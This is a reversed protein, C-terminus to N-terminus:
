DRHTHDDRWEDFGDMEGDFSFGDRAPFIEEVGYPGGGTSPRSSMLVTRSVFFTESTDGGFRTLFRAVADPNSNKLRALTVHPKFPRKDIQIGAQRAARDHAKALRELTDSPEVAAWVTRPSNGGFAGVGKLRLPFSDFDIQELNSIFERRKVGDIEGVFRLTIHYNEPYIWRAGPLPIHLRETWASIEAPLEIATFLRPM